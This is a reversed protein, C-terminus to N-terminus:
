AAKARDDLTRAYARAQGETVAGPKGALAFGVLDDPAYRHDGGGRGAVLAAVAILLPSRRTM